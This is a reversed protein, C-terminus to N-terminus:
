FEYHDLIRKLTRVTTAADEEPVTELLRAQLKEMADFYRRITLSGQPGLWLEHARKDDPPVRRSLFGREVLRKVVEQLTSRDVHMEKALDRLLILGAQQVKVMIGMQMPTIDAQESLEVFLANSLSNLRRFLFGLADDMNFNNVRGDALTENIAPMPQDARM